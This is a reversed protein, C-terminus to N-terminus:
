LGEGEQRQAANRGRGGAPSSRAASQGGSLGQIGRSPSPEASESEPWEAEVGGSHPDDKWCVEPLGREARWENVEALLEAKKDPGHVLDDGVWGAEATLLMEPQVMRPTRWPEDAQPQCLAAKDWDIPLKTLIEFAARKAPDDSIDYLFLRRARRLKNAISDKAEQGRALFSEEDEWEGRENRVQGAAPQFSRKRRRDIMPPRVGALETASAADREEFLAVAGDWAARFAEAGAAKYVKEVGYRSKGMIDAALNPSGTFALWAVFQRQLPATWGDKRKNQRPAPEFELLAAIEPDAALEEFTPIQDPSDNM